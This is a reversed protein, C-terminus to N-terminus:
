MARIKVGSSTHLCSISSIEGPARKRKGGKHRLWGQTHKPESASMLGTIPLRAGRKGTNQKNTHTDASSRISQNKERGLLYTHMPHSIRALMHREGTRVVQVRIDIGSLSLLGLIRCRRIRLPALVKGECLRSGFGYEKTALGHEKGPKSQANGKGRKPYIVCPPPETTREKGAPKKARHSLRASQGAILISYLFDHLTDYTIRMTIITYEVRRGSVVISGLHLTSHKIASGVNDTVPYGYLCNIPVGRLMSLSMLSRSPIQGDQMVPYIDIPGINFQVLIVRDIGRIGMSRTHGDHKKQALPKTLPDVINDLTPVRCINVEGRDIIERILHYRRLIHKSRQHSRPEKAQAIAGNNDCYLGIPDVISPVIGLESIFKKIWVDEKTASSAAIYEVETTSDAVTHQKSSKWSVTGGNLCVVYGNSDHM